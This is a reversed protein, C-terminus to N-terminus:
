LGQGGAGISRRDQLEGRFFVEADFQNQQGVRMGIVNCIQWSELLFGRGLNERGRALRDRARLFNVFSFMELKALDVDFRSQGPSMRGAADCKDTGTEGPRDRDNAIRQEST